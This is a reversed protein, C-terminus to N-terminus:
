SGAPEAGLRRWAWVLAQRALILTASLLMVDVFGGLDVRDGFVVDVAELILFKSLFLIGWVGVLGLVLRGRGDEARAWALVREKAAAIVDLLLKLLAATLLSITFSDITKAASWEVWLNLVVVYVLVDATWSLFVRQARTTAIDLAPTSPM